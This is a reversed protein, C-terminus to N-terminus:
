APAAMAEVEDAPSTSLNKAEWPLMQNRAVAASRESM